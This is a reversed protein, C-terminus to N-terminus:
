IRGAPSGSDAMTDAGSIGTLAPPTWSPTGEEIYVETYEKIATQICKGRGIKPM